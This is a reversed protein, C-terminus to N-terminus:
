VDIFYDRFIDYLFSYSENIVDLNGNKSGKKTVMVRGMEDYYGAHFKFNTDGYTMRGKIQVIKADKETIFREVEPHNFIDRRGDIEVDKLDEEDIKIKVTKISLAASTESGSEILGQQSRYKQLKEDIEDVFDQMQRNAADNTFHHHGVPALHIGIDDLKNIISLAKGYNNTEIFALDESTDLSFKTAYLNTSRRINNLPDIHYRENKTWYTASLQNDEQNEIKYGEQILEGESFEAENGELSSELSHLFQSEELDMM